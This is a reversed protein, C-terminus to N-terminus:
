RNPKKSSASFAARTTFVMEMPLCESDRDPTAPYTELHKQDVTATLAAAMADLIDDDAVQKCPLRKRVCEFDSPTGPRLEELLARREIFGSPTKKNHQMPKGALAWFCVEPHVERVISRAKDCTRLLHDVEWIKPLLACSTSSLGKGSAERNIDSGCRFVGKRSEDDKGECATMIERIPAPFVSSRRKGLQERACVDCRREGHKRQEGDLLGIPIDVFIRDSPQAMEVVQKLQAVVDGDVAGNADISYYFWGAKCGDVGYGTM